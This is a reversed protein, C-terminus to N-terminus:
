LHCAQASPRGRWVSISTACHILGLAQWPKQGAGARRQGPLGPRVRGDAPVFAPTPAARLLRLQAGFRATLTPPRRGTGDWDVIHDRPRIDTSWAPGNPAVWTVM